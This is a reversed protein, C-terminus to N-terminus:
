KTAKFALGTDEKDESAVFIVAGAPLTLIGETADGPRKVKVKVTEAIVYRTLAPADGGSSAVAGRAGLGIVVGALVVALAFWFRKM